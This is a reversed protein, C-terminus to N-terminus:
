EDVPIHHNFTKGKSGEFYSGGYLHWDLSELFGVAKDPTMSQAQDPSILGMFYRGSGTRYEYEVLYHLWFRKCQNCQWLEVVGYRGNTEDIGINRVRNYRTYIQPTELCSCSHIDLM